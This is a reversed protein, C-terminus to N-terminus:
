DLVRVDQNERPGNLVDCAFTCTASLTAVSCPGATLLLRPAVVYHFCMELLANWRHQEADSGSESSGARQSRACDVKALDQATLATTEPEDLIFEGTGELDSLRASGKKRQGM